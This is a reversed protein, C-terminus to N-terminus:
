VTVQGAVQQSMEVALVAAAAVARVALAGACVKLGAKPLWGLLARM